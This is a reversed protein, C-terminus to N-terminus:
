FLSLRNGFFWTDIAGVQLNKNSGANHQVFVELYDTSGNMSESSVFPCSIANVTTTSGINNETVAAGNKYLAVSAFAATANFLVCAAMGLNYKGPMLPTYRFNTVIDFFGGIDWQKTDYKVKVFSGTAVSQANALYVKFNVPNLFLNDIFWNSGDTYLRLSDGNGIVINSQGTISGSAPTITVLAHSSTLCSFDIFGGAIEAPLTVTYASSGGLSILSSYASSNLTTTTSISTVTNVVSIVNGSTRSLGNGPSMAVPNSLQFNTGDYRLSAVMNAAIDGSVLATGDMRVISKAGLSNLNITAAGTNANTFQISVRMSTTYASPVPSLTATYTNAATTSAAYSPTDNQHQAQTVFNAPNPNLQFNTGDYVFHAIQGAVLDNASPNSGDPRKINKTGLSNVNLTSAGTNANAIKLFVGLGAVYSTVAPTLVAAYANASGSDAVYTFNNNQIYSASYEDTSPNKLQFNTGDYTLLYIGGAILDNASINGGATYIVNKAGLGNLNITTADTNTNAVKVYVSMGASYSGIAPSLTATVTNASVSTDVGYLYQGNQIATIQGYRLDATAQSIKQTLTETIFPAGGYTSINGSTITTQGNAITIVFAGTFGSDPSPTVQTGTPAQVGIKAQITVGDFRITNNPAGSNSPGSWPVSPNSANYYPLVTSGGDTESFGIQILVNWSNGVTGPATLTLTSSDLIVGQKVIAHATDSPLSGYASNDINQLSYIEGPTVKVQMSAPATPICTFANLLTSSGLIAACAKALGIYANKNTLLMDTDQPMQGIFVQQRDM